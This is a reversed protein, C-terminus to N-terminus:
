VNGVGGRGLGEGNVTDPSQGDGGGGVPDCRTSSTSLAKKSPPPSPRAAASPARWWRTWGRSSTWCGSWWRRTRCCPAPAAPPLPASCRHMRSMAAALEWAPMPRMACCACAAEVGLGLWGGGTVEQVGLGEQEARWRRRVKEEDKVLALGTSRVYERFAARLAESAGVRGLLGYLRGLDGVRHGDLLPGLGRDLLPGTHRAVLAGEVAAILPRRSSADLYESCREFEEGLRTQTPSPLAPGPRPSPLVLLRFCPTHPLLLSAHCPLLSTRGRAPM